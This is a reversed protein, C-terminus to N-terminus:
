SLFHFEPGCIDDLDKCELGYLGELYENADYRSLEALKTMDSESLNVVGFREIFNKQYCQYDGEIQFSTLKAYYYMIRSNLVKELADITLNSGFISNVKLSVAYGNCFLQDSRDLIFRPYKSFTKTLLKPGCAEMGQTRGWAYWSEYSKKGRDRSELLSRRELLYSYASPFRERLEGEQLLRYKGDVKTYPFIIRLRNQNLDEVGNLDAIKVAPRTVGIEVVQSEQNLASAICYRDDKKQVLFVADKLTAFGVKISAVMGLPRGSSEIINLNELHNGKALRWKDAKLNSFHIASFAAVRLSDASPPDISDFEFSRNKRTGLFVLCTYASANQFVKHHGFDVIRRICEQDQLYQRVGRGALSSFLNNQTIIALCGKQNLLRHGAILFLLALSFSGYAYGKFKESLRSRYDVELNQLKVYPPNTTVLNFGSCAGSISWLDEPSELLTDRCFLRLDTNLPRAGQLILYLEILCHAHEIAWPDNDFGVLCEEFAKQPPIKSKLLEAAQILFGGSGCAPDCVLPAEKTRYGSLLLGHRVLYETIFDPTYVAGQSKRRAADILVEFASETDKISLEFISRNLMRVIYNVEITNPADLFRSVSDAQRLRSIAINNIKAWHQLLAAHISSEEYDKVLKAVLEKASRKPCYSM